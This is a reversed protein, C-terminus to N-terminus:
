ASAPSSPRSRSRKRAPAHPRPAAALAPRDAARPSAGGAAVTRRASRRGGDNRDGGARRDRDDGRDERGPCQSGRSGAWSSQRLARDRGGDSLAAGEGKAMEVRAVNGIEFAAEGGSRLTAFGSSVEGEREILLATQRLRFEDRRAQALNRSSRAIWQEVVDVRREGVGRVLRLTREDQEGAREVARDGLSAALKQALDSGGTAPEQRREALAGLGIALHVERPDMELTGAIELREGAHEVIERDLMQNTALEVLSPAQELARDVCRSLSSRRRREHQVVEALKGGEAAVRRAALGEQSLRDGVPPTLSIRESEALDQGRM